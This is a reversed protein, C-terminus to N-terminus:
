EAQDLLGPGGAFAPSSEATRLSCDAVVAAGVAVASAAPIKLWTNQAHGQTSQKQRIAVTINFLGLLATLYTECASTAM